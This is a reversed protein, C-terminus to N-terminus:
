PAPNAALWASPQGAQAQRAQEYVTMVKLMKVHGDAFAVVMGDFHRGSVFDRQLGGSLPHSGVNGTGTHGIIKGIGPIYWFNGSPNVAYYASIIYPGADMAMYTSAPAALEALARSTGSSPHRIVDQNAGYHGLYPRDRYVAISGCTFVGTNKFYPYVLQPWFTYSGHWTGGYSAWNIGPYANAYSNPFIEDHDQTYMMLGMGLQKMNSTCSAARARERAQAFVPFLIAALIAIIAIVVLLEILTFGRRKM